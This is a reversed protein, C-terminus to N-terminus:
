CVTLRDIPGTLIGIVLHRGKDKGHVVEHNSMGMHMPGAWIEIYRHEHFEPSNSGFIDRIAERVNSQAVQDAGNKTLFATAVDLSQLEKIRRGLKMIASDIEEPSRFERPEIPPPESRKAM